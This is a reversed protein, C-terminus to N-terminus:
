IFNIFAEYKTKLRLIYLLRNLPKKYHAEFSNIVHAIRDYANKALLPEEYFREHSPVWGYENLVQMMFDTGKHRGGAISQLYGGISIYEPLKGEIRFFDDQKVANFM